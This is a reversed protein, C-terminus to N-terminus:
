KVLKGGTTVSRLMRYERNSYNQHGNIRISGQRLLMNGSIRASLIQLLNVTMIIDRDIIEIYQIQLILPKKSVM